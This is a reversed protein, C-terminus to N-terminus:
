LYPFQPGSFYLQSAQNMCYFGFVKLVVDLYAVSGGACVGGRGVRGQGVRSWGIENRGRFLFTHTPLVGSRNEEFAQQSFSVRYRM